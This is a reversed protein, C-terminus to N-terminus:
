RYYCKRFIEHTAKRIQRIRYCFLVPNLTGSLFVVTWSINGYIRVHTRDMNGSTVASWVLSGVYPAYCLVYLACIYAMTRSSRKYRKMNARLQGQLMASLRSEIKLRSEHKHVSRFINSYLIANIILSTGIIFAELAHWISYWGLLPPLIYCVFCLIWCGAVGSVIKERRVLEKYRLHLHLALFRDFSVGTLTLFSVGCLSTGLIMAVASGNCYLEVNGHIRAINFIVFAPQTVLANLLDAFALCCLLLNSPTHLAPSKWIAMIVVANGLASTVSLASTVVTTAISVNLLSNTHRRSMSQSELFCSFQARDQNSDVSINYM